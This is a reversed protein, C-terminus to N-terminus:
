NKADAVQGATHDVVLELQTVGLVGVGLLLPSSDTRLLQFSLGDVGPEM